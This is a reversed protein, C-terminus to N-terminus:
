TYDVSKYAFYEAFIMRRCVAATFSREEAWRESDSNLERLGPELGHAVLFVTLVPVLEQM